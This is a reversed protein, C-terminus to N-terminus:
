IILVYLKQLGRSFHMHRAYQIQIYSYPMALEIKIFLIGSTFRKYTGWGVKLVM